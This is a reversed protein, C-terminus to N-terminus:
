LENITKAIYLVDDACLREYMPIAVGQIYANYANPFLEQVKLKYRLQYYTQAPICQAGYNTGIGKQKLQDIIKKQDLPKNLLLHFTQWTHNRGQPVFPLIVKSNTINSFYLSALENKYRLINDIRGFQSY